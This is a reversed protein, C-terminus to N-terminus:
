IEGEAAGALALKEGTVIESLAGDETGQPDQGQGECGTGQQPHAGLALAIGEIGEELFDRMETTGPHGRCQGRGGKEGEKEVVGVKM